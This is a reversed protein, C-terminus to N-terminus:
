HGIPMLTISLGNATVRLDAPRVGRGEFGAIDRPRLAYLVEGELLARALPKGLRDIQRQWRASLGDIAFREVRVDVLRITNDSPEYRLSQSVLLSGAITTRVVGDNGARLAVEVDIRNTEPELTLRPSDLTVELGDFVRKSVPFRKEVLEQLRVQSVDITRSGLLSACGPVAGVLALVAGGLAAVAIRRGKM